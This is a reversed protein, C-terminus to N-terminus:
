LVKDIIVTVKYDNKIRLTGSIPVHTIKDMIWEFMEDDIELHDDKKFKFTKKYM